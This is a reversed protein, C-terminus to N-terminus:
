MSIGSCSSAKPADPSTAAADDAEPRSGTEPPNGAPETQVPATGTTQSLVTGTSRTSNSTGNTGAPGSSCGTLVALIVAALIFSKLRCKKIGPPKCSRSPGPKEPM